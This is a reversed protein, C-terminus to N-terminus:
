AQLAMYVVATVVTRIASPYTPFSHLFSLMYARVFCCENIGCSDVNISLACFSHVSYYYYCWYLLLTPLIVFLQICPCLRSIVHTHTDGASARILQLKLEAFLQDYQIPCESSRQPEAFVLSGLVGYAYSM